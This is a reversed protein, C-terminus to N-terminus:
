TTRPATATVADQGRRESGTTVSDPLRRRRDRQADVDVNPVSGGPRPSRGRGDARGRQGAVLKDPLTAKVKYPGPSASPTAARGERLDVPEGRSLAKPDAEGPAGDGMLRHVYVMVAAQQAANNSRGYRWLARNM